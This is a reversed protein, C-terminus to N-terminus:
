LRFKGVLVNLEAALNALQESSGAVEEMSSSTQQSSASTQEVGAASEESIAAIDEISRNMEESSTAMESLNESIQKVSNTMENVFLQIGQFTEGTTRLQTTGKEVEAYGTELSQAVSNSETQIGTVIGTIDTVSVSVQEALKRVEDAVVAFGKGQEGARAAEIAANLALLNTQEAIDRIVSVLKSIEKSQADLGKMKQVSEKVIRDIAVMQTTSDEMLTSGENTMVMVENSAQQVLAGKDNAQHVKTTFSSIVEALDSASNAQTETGSALEQMTEAVQESGAKVENASQTLEESHSTVTQSVTAVQQIVNRLHETMGNIATSLKGIEDKGKYAMPEVALNGDAIQNSISVVRGLNRSVSRSILFILVGGIVISGVMTALQIILTLEQLDKTERTSEFREENMVERLEDLQFVISSRLIKAESVLSAANSTDGKNATPVVENMFLENMEQDKSVIQEFLEKEEATNIREGIKEALENFQKTYDEYEEVSLMSQNYMYTSIPVGKEKTIASMETIDVAQNGRMDVNRVNDGIDMLLKSVYATSAAILIFVLIITFGYKWGIKVNRLTLKKRM